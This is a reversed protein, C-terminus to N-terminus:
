VAGKTRLDKAARRYLVLSITGPILLAILGFTTCNMAESIAEALVRAKQSSDVAPGAIVTSARYVGVAGLVLGSGGLFTACALAVRALQFGVRPREFRRALVAGAIAAVNVFLLVFWWAMTQGVDQREAALALLL